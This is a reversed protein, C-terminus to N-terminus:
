ATGRACVWAWDCLVCWSVVACIACSRGLSSEKVDVMETKVEMKVPPPLKLEAKPLDYKKIDALLLKAEDAWKVPAATFM